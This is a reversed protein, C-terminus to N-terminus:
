FSLRVPFWVGFMVATGVDKGQSLYGDGVGWPAAIHIDSTICVCRLYSFCLLGLPYGSGVDCTYLLVLFCKQNVKAQVLKVVLHTEAFICM